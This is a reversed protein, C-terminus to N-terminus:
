TEHFVVVWEFGNREQQEKGRLSGMGHTTAADNSIGFCRYKGGRSKHSRGFIPNKKGGLDDWKNMPNPKGNNLGGDM